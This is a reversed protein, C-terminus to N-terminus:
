GPPERGPPWELPAGIPVVVVDGTWARSAPNAFGLKPALFTATVRARVCVGLPEGRDADLGSPVDLALVPAGCGNVAEILGAAHPGPARDLGTGFMGDVVLAPPGFATLADRTPGGPAPAVAPLEMARCIAAQIASDGRYSDWGRPDAAVIGVRRGAVALHRAAALADGGNGGPGAVLVVVGQLGTSELMGLALRAAGAGANEMLCVSPIRLRDM